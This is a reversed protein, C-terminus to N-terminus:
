VSGLSSNVISDWSQKKNDYNYERAYNYYKHHRFKITSLNKTDYNKKGMIPSNLNLSKFFVKFINM